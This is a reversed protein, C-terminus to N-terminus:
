LINRHLPLHHIPRTCVMAAKIADVKPGVNHILYNRTTCIVLANIEFSGHM